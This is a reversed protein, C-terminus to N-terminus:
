GCCGKRPNPDIDLEALGQVIGCHEISHQSQCRQRLELLEEKLTSLAQLREEVHHIHADLVDNVGQCNTVHRDVLSLIGLIEQQTMDLARCNRVFRLRHLHSEDYDRYNGETRLPEMLLGAKEYYRITEVTCRSQKALEGIKM